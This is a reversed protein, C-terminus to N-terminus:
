KLLQKGVADEIATYAINAPTAPLIRGAYEWDLESREIKNKSLIEDIQSDTINDDGIEVGLNFIDQHAKVMREDRHLIAQLFEQLAVNLELNEKCMVRVFMGDEFFRKLVALLNKIEKESM